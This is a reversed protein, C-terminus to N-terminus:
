KLMEWGTNKFSDEFQSMSSLYSYPASNFLNNAQGPMFYPAYFYGFMRLGPAPDVPYMVQNLSSLPSMEPGNPVTISPASGAENHTPTTSFLLLDMSDEISQGSSKPITPSSDKKQSAPKRKLVIKHQGTSPPEGLSPEGSIFPEHSPGAAEPNSSSVQIPLGPPLSPFSHENSPCIDDFGESSDSGQRSEDDVTGMMPDNGNPMESPTNSSNADNSQNNPYLKKIVRNWPGMLKDIVGAERYELIGLHHNIIMCGAFYKSEVLLQKSSWVTQIARKIDSVRESDICSEMELVANRLNRFHVIVKESASLLDGNLKNLPSPNVTLSDGLFLIIIDLSIQDLVIGGLQNCVSLTTYDTKYKKTGLPQFLHHSYVLEMIRNFSRDTPNEQEMAIPQDLQDGDNTGAGKSEQTVMENSPNSSGMEKMGNTDPIVSEPVDHDEEQSDDDHDEESDKDYMSQMLFVDKASMTGESVKSVDKVPAILRAPACGPAFELTEHVKDYVIQNSQYNAIVIHSLKTWVDHVANRISEIRPSKMRKRIDHYAFTLSGCSEVWLDGLCMPVGNPKYGVPANKRIKKKSYIAVDLTVQDLVLDRLKQIDVPPNQKLNSSTPQPLQLFLYHTPIRSKSKKGLKPLRRTNKNGHLTDPLPIVTSSYTISDNMVSNKSSTISSISSQQTPVIADIISGISSQQTPAKFDIIPAIPIIPKGNDNNTNVFRNYSDISVGSSQMKNFLRQPPMPVTVLKPGKKRGTPNMNNGSDAASYSSYPTPSPTGNLPPQRPRPTSTYRKNNTLASMIEINRKLENVQREYDINQKKLVDFDVRLMGSDWIGSSCVIQSEVDLLEGYGHRDFGNWFDGIYQGKYIARGDDMFEIMWNDFFERLIRICRGNDYEAYKMYEGSYEMGMGHKKGTLHHYGGRYVIRGKKDTEILARESQHNIGSPRDEYQIPDQNIQVGEITLKLSNKVKGNAPSLGNVYLLESKIAGSEDDYETVVGNWIGRRAIGQAKLRGSTPYYLKVVGELEDDVMNGSLLLYTQEKHTLLLSCPGSKVGNHWSCALFENMHPNLYSEYGPGSFMNDKKGCLICSTVHDQLIRRSCDSNALPINNQSANSWIGPASSPISSLSQIM